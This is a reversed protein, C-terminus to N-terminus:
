DVGAPEPNCLRIATRYYSALLVINSDARAGCPMAMILTECKGISSATYFSHGLEGTVIFDQAYLGANRNDSCLIANAVVALRLRRIADSRPVASEGDYGTVIDQGMWACNLSFCFLLLAAALRMEEVTRLSGARAFLFELIRSKGTSM